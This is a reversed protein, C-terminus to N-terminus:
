VLKVVTQALRGTSKGGQARRHGNGGGICCVALMTTLGTARCLTQEQVRRRDLMQVFPTTDVECQELRSQMKAGDTKTRNSLEFLAIQLGAIQGAQQQNRQKQAENDTRQDDIQGQMEARLIANERREAEIQSQFEVWMTKLVNRVAPDDLGAVQSAIDVTAGATCFLALLVTMVLLSVPRLPTM